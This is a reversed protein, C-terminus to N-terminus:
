LVCQSYGGVWGLRCVSGSPFSNHLSGANTHRSCPRTDDGGVQKDDTDTANENKMDTEPLCYKQSSTVPYPKYFFHYKQPVVGMHCLDLLDKQRVESLLLKGSYRRPLSLIFSTQRGRTNKGKIKLQKFDDAMRYKFLLTEPDEKLYRLWQITLWNM